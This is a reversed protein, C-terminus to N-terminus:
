PIARRTYRSLQMDGEAQWQTRGARPPCPLAPLPLIASEVGRCRVGGHREWIMRSSQERDDGFRRELAVQDLVELL